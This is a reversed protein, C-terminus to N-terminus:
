GEESVEARNKGHGEVMIQEGDVISKYLANLGEPVSLRRELFGMAFPGRATGLPEGEGYHM